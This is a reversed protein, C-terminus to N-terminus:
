RPGTRSRGICRVGSRTGLGGALVLVPNVRRRPALLAGLTHLGVLRGDADLVPLQGIDRAQMLDLAEARGIEERVASFHTSMIAPLCRGDLAAGGLIARRIDGDTLVGVVRMTEDHVFSIGQGGDELVRMADLITADCAVLLRALDHQGVGVWRV